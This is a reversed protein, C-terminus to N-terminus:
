KLTNWVDDNKAKNWYLLTQSMYDNQDYLRNVVAVVNDYFEEAEKELGFLRLCRIIRTIRLLNHNRVRCWERQRNIDEYQGIAFFREFRDKANKINEIINENQKAEEIIEPSVIPFTTAHNSAEHLPFIFQVQDHSRELQSDSWLLTEQYARGYYDKGSGEL